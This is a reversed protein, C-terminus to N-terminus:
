YHVAESVVRRPLIAKIGERVFAHDDVALLRSPRAQEEV